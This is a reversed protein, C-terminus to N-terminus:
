AELHKKLLYSLILMIIGLSFYVVEIITPSPQNLVLVEITIWLSLVLGAVMGLIPRSSLNRIFAISSLTSTSGVIVILLLGPIFFDTFPTKTLLTFSLNSNEQGTMMLIGGMISTLMIFISSIELLSELVTNQLFSDRVITSM